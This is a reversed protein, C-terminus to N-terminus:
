RLYYLRDLCNSRSNDTRKANKVDEYMDGIGIALGGIIILTLSIAMSKNLGYSEALGGLGLLCLAFGIKSLFRM